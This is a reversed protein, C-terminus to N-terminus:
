LLHVLPFVGCGWVLNRIVAMLLTEASWSFLVLNSKKKKREWGKLVIKLATHFHESIFPLLDSLMYFTWNSDTRTSTQASSLRLREKGSSPVLVGFSFPVFSVPQM